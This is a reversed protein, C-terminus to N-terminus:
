DENDEDYGPHHDQDIIGNILDDVRQAVFLEGEAKKPTGDYSDPDFLYHSDELGIGFFAAGAEMGDEGEFQPIMRATAGIMTSGLLDFTLGQKNFEPDLAALGLACVFTNCSMTPLVQLVDQPALGAINTRNYSSVAAIEPKLPFDTNNYSGDGNHDFGSWAGLDFRCGEPNAADARLLDRLHTLREVNM